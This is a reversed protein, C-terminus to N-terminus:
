IAENYLWLFVIDKCYITGRSSDITDNDWGIGLANKYHIKTVCQYDSLENVQRHLINIQGRLRYKHKM